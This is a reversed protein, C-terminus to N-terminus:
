LQETRFKDPLFVAQVASIIVSTFVIWLLFQTLGVMAVGVIKGVMLQFPKVSSIIIEIIRSTKEEIVGRMVQTGYLFIFVYILVGAIMGVIMSLETYSKEEAGNKDLGITNIRVNTKIAKLMKEDIGSAALKGSEIEKEIAQEIYRITTIGPQQKYYLQVGNPTSMLTKTIYLIATHEKSHFEAKAQEINDSSYDFKITETEPFNNNVFIWSDDIVKIFQGQQEVQSLWIPVIMLGGILLPGIITMIIFSKKRVRTLYERKIILPIKNM